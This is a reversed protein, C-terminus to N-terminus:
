RLMLAGFALVATWFAAHEVKAWWRGAWFKVGHAGIPKRWVDDFTESTICATAVGAGTLGAM